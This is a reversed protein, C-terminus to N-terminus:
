HVSRTSRAVLSPIQVVSPVSHVPSADRERHGETDEATIEAQNLGNAARALTQLGATARFPGWGRMATLLKGTTGTRLVLLVRSNRWSSTEDSRMAPLPPLLYCGFGKSTVRPHSDLGALCLAALRFRTKRPGLCCVPSRPWSAYVAPM